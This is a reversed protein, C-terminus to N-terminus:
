PINRAEPTHINFTLHPLSNAPAANDAAYRHLMLLYFFLAINILRM